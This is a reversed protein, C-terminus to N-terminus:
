RRPPASLFGLKKMRSLKRKAMTAKDLKKRSRKRKDPDQNTTPKWIKESKPNKEELSDSKKEQSSKNEKQPVRPLIENDMDSNRALLKNHNDHFRNAKVNKISNEAKKNETSVNSDNKPEVKKKAAPNHLSQQTSTQRALGIKRKAETGGAPKEGGGGEWLGTQAAKRAKAKKGRGREQSKKEKLSAKTSKIGEGLVFPQPSPVGAEALGSGGETRSNAGGGKRGGGDGVGGVKERVKVKLGPKRRPMGKKHGKVVGKPNNPGTGGGEGRNVKMTLPWLDPPLYEERTWVSRVVSQWQRRAPVDRAMRCPPELSSGTVKVEAEWGPIESQYLQSVSSLLCLCPKIPALIGHM